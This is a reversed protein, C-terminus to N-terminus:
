HDKKDHDIEQVKAHDALMVEHEKKMKEHDITFEEHEKNMSNLKELMTADDLSGAKYLKLISEHRVIMEQHKKIMKQHESIIMKHKAAIEMVISDDKGKEEILESLLHVHRQEMETHATHMVRHGNQMLFHESIQEKVGKVKESQSCALLCMCCLFFCSVRKM